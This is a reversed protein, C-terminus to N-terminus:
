EDSNPVTVSRGIQCDRVSARLRSGDVQIGVVARASRTAAEDGSPGLVPPRHGDSIEVCRQRVGVAGM